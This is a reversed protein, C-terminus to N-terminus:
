LHLTGAINIYECGRKIAYVERDMSFCYQSQTQKQPYFARFYLYKEQKFQSYCSRHLTFVKGNTSLELGVEEMFFLVLLCCNKVFVQWIAPIQM